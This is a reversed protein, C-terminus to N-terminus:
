LGFSVVTGWYLEGLFGPIEEDPMGLSRLKAAAEYYADYTARKLNDKYERFEEKIKEKLTDPMEQRNLIYGKAIKAHGTEILVKEVMDYIDDMELVEEGHHRNLFLTVLGALEETTRKEIGTGPLPRQGAQYISNSIKKEDYPVLTGDELRLQM